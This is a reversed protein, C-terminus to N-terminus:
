ALGGVVTHNAVASCPYNQGAVVSYQCEGTTPDVVGAYGIGLEGWKGDNIQFLLPTNQHDYNYTANALGGLASALIGWTVKEKM